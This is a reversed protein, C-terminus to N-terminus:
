IRKFMPLLRNTREHGLLVSLKGLIFSHSKIVKQMCYLCEKELVKEAEKTTPILYNCRNM